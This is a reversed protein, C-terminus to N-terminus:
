QAKRRLLGFDKDIQALSRLPMLRSPKLDALAKRVLLAAIAFAAAAVVLGAWHMALGAAALASVCAQLLVLFGGLALLLAAALAVAARAAAAVNEGIEARALRLETQFLGAAQAAFTNLLAWTSPGAESQSM